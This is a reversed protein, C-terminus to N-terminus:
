RRTRVVKEELWNHILVQAPLKQAKAIETVQRMLNGDIAVLYKRRKLAINFDVEQYRSGGEVLDAATAHQPVTQSSAIFISSNL